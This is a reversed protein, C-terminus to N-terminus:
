ACSDLPRPSTYLLCNKGQAAMHDGKDLAASFHRGWDPEERFIERLSFEEGERQSEFDLSSRQRAVVRSIKWLRLKSRPPLSRVTPPWIIARTLRPRSIGEGIWSNESFRACRFSREKGGPSLTSLPAKEPLM